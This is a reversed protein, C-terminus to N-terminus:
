QKIIKKTWQSDGIQVQLFYIGVPIDNVDFSANLDGTTITQYQIVQGQANYLSLSIKGQQNLQYDINVILEQQVPNPYVQVLHDNVGNIENVNVMIGNESCNSRDIILNMLSDAKQYNLKGKSLIKDADTSELSDTGNMLAFKVAFYSSEPYKDFLLAAARSVQAAAFSTGNVAGVGNTTGARTTVDTGQATMDIKMDGYNSYPALTNSTAATIAAVSLINDVDTNIESALSNSPWHARSSDGQVELTDNGASAVILIGCNQQGVYDIANELVMCPDGYYGWSCNVVRVKATDGSPTVRKYRAAYHLACTANFLTGKGEKDTYKLPLIGIDPSNSNHPILNRQSMGTVIGAIATGHGHDDNANNNRDLFNYGWAADPMCTDGDIAGESIFSQLGTYAYDVGSDIIAVLTTATTNGQGQQIALTDPLNNTSDGMLAYDPDASQLEPRASAKTASRKTGSGRGEIMATDSVEWLEIDGCLCEDIPKAGLAERAAKKVSDQQQQNLGALVSPKFQVIMTQCQVPNGSSDVCAGVEVRKKKMCLTLNPFSDNTVCAAYSKNNHTTTDVGVIGLTHMQNIGINNFNGASQGGPRFSPGGGGIYNGLVVTGLTSATGQQDFTEWSYVNCYLAGATNVTTTGSGDDEEELPVRGAEFTLSGGQKRRKVGGIGVSDQGDYQFDSSDQGLQPIYDSVNPNLIRVVRNFRMVETLRYLDTFDLANDSVDVQKLNSFRSAFGIATRIRGIARNKLTPQIEDFNNGSMDFSELATPTTANNRIQQGLLWILNLEGDLQNNSFDIRKIASLGGYAGITNTSFSISNTPEPLTGDLQNDSLDLVELNPIEELLKVFINGTLDNNALHLERLNTFGGVPINFQFVDGIDLVRNAQLVELSICNTLISDINSFSSFMNNSINLRTLNTNINISNITAATLSNSSLSLEELVPFNANIIAGLDLNLSISNNDLLLVKLTSSTPFTLSSIQNFNDLANAANLSKIDTFDTLLDSLFTGSNFSDFDNNSVDISELSSNTKGFAVLSGNVFGINNNSLDLHKVFSLSDGDFLSGELFGGLSQGGLLISDVRLEAGMQVTSVGPWLSANTTGSWINSTIPSGGVRLENGLRVLALSDNVNLPIQGFITTSLLLSLIFTFLKM